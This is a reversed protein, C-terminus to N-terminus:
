EPTQGARFQQPPGQLDQGSAMFPQNVAAEPDSSKQVASGARGSANNQAAAMAATALSTGALLAGALLRVTRSTKM